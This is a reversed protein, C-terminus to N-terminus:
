MSNLMAESMAVKTVTNPDARRELLLEVMEFNGKETAWMLATCGHQTCMHM